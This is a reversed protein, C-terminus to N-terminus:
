LNGLYLFPLVRSPFSGDFRPDNFWAQHDGGFMGSPLTNARPRSVRGVTMREVSTTHSSRLPPALPAHPSGDNRVGLLVPPQAFSVSKASPRSTPPPKPSSPYSNVDGFNQWANSYPHFGTGINMHPRQARRDQGRREEQTRSEIRRLLSLDSQYVFFSRQKEVQLELYAEPLSLEKIAMLLCLAPVSSETYGDASHLLVKLPRSWKRKPHQLANVTDHLYSPSPASGASTLSRLRAAAMSSPGPSSAPVSFSPILAPVSSWRRGDKKKEASTSDTNAPPSPSVPSLCTELFKIVAMLSNINANTAAPSSPLSLHVVSNAHPPPRVQESSSSAMQQRERWLEELQEIREEAARLTAVTPFPALDHCEICIDYGMGHEPINTPHPNLPHDAPLPSPSSRKSDGEESSLDSHNSFGQHSMNAWSPEVGDWYPVDNSNGLFVQGVLPQYDQTGVKEESSSPFVTIIESAKTLDRMEDQERQAFDVTNPAGPGYRRRTTLDATATTSASDGLPKRQMAVADPVYGSPIMRVVLHSIDRHIKEANADLVFVNYTLLQNQSDKGLRHVREQRKKDIASKLREALELANRSCGKPSYVVFDSLTAVIPQLSLIFSDEKAFRKGDTTALIM